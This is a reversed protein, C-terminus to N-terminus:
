AATNVTLNPYVDQSSPRPLRDDPFYFDDIFDMLQRRRNSLRTLIDKISNPDFETELWMDKTGRRGKQTKAVFLTESHEYFMGHFIKNRDAFLTKIDDIADQWDIIATPYAKLNSLRSLLELNTSVTNGPPILVKALDQERSLVILVSRIVTEMFGFDLVAQGLSTLFYPTIQRESINM